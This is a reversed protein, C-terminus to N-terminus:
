KSDYSEDNAKPPHGTASGRRDALKQTGRM